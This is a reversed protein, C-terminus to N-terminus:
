NALFGIVTQAYSAPDATLSGVHGAGETIVLRVLDPRIEAFEVSTSVPVVDDEGGHLVLVPTSLADSRDVYDYNEWNVDARLSSFFKATEVVTFLPPFGFLTRGEAWASVTADLDLNPSDFVMSSVSGLPQRIAYAQAIAAGSGYGFLVVETAGASVAYEAAAALDQHETVGYRHQGSPDSPQGDDNRYTIAMQHYGAEDLFEMAGLAQARSTGAGHVHIVWESRSGDTVWADMSGLPSEYTVEETDLGVDSPSGPADDAAVRELAAPPTFVEAIIDGSLLWGGLAHYVLVAVAALLLLGRWIRSPISRENVGPMRASAIPRNWM